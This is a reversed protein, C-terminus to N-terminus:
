PEIEITPSHCIKVLNVGIQLFGFAGSLDALTGFIAGNIRIGSADYDSIENVLESLNAV